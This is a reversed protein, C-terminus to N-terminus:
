VLLGFRYKPDPICSHGATLQRELWRYALQFHSYRHRHSPNVLDQVQQTVCLRRAVGWLWLTLLALIIMLREFRDAHQLQSKEVDFGRAKIDSFFEECGFRRKYENIIRKNPPLNTAMM